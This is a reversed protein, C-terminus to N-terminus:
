VMSECGCKSFVALLIYGTIASVTRLRMLLRDDSLLGPMERVVCLGLRRMCVAGSKNWLM